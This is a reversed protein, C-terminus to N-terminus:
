RGRAVHEVRDAVRVQEGREDVGVRVLDGGLDVVQQDLGVGGVRALDGSILASTQSYRNM